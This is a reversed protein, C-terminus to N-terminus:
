FTGKAEWYCRLNTIRDCSCGTKLGTLGARPKVGRRGRLSRLKKVNGRKCPGPGKKKREWIASVVKEPFVVAPLTEGPDGRRPNTLIRSVLMRSTSILREVGEANL